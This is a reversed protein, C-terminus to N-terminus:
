DETKSKQLSLWAKRLLHPLLLRLPMKIWHSYALLLVSAVSASIGNGRAASVLSCALWGKPVAGDASFVAAAASLASEVISAVGLSRARELVPGADGNFHQQVLQQVDYLDRMLKQPDGEQVMHLACHIARDTPGLVFIGPRVEVISPQLRDTPVHVRSVPPNIAHHLDLTTHRRVHAMPPVEHMWDRYYREDYASLSSPTWGAAILDGETRELLARPVLIDVDSFLRGAAIHDRCLAYSCGKLVWLPTEPDVVRRLNEVEWLAAERRRQAVLLALDLHLRVAKSLQPMVGARVLAAALPGLLQKDQGSVVIDNWHAEDVQLARAPQQLLEVLGPSPM